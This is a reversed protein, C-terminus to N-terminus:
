LSAKAAFAKRRAKLDLRAAKLWKDGLNSLRRSTKAKITGADLGELAIWIAHTFDDAYEDHDISIQVAAKGAIFELVGLATMDFREGAVISNTSADILRFQGHNDISLAARSKRM